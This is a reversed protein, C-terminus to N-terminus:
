VSAASYRSPYTTRAMRLVESVAVDALGADPVDVRPLDLADLANLWEDTIDSVDLAEIGVVEYEGRNLKEHDAYIYLPWNRDEPDDAIWQRPEEPFLDLIVKGDFHEIKVNLAM